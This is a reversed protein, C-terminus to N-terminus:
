PRRRDMLWMALAILGGVAIGIVLGASPQRLVIGTIAGAMIAVALIIGGASRPSSRHDDMRRRKGGIM